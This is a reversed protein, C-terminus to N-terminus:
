PRTGVGKGRLEFVKVVGKANGAAVYNQFSAVATIREGDAAIRRTEQRPPFMRDYFRLRGDDTAVVAVADGVLVPSGKAVREHPELTDKVASRMFVVGASDIRVGDGDWEWQSGRSLSFLKTDPAMDFDRTASDVDIRVLTEDDGLVAFLKGGLLAIPVQDSLQRLPLPRSSVDLRGNHSVTHLQLHGLDESLFVVQRRVEDAAAWSLRWSSIITRPPPPVRAQTEIMQVERRSQTGIQQHSTVYIRGDMCTLAQIPTGSVPSQWLRLLQPAELSLSGLSYASVKSPSGLYLVGRDICPECSIPGDVKFRRGTEGLRPDAIEITGGQSVAILHRDYGLLSRCPDGLQLHLATEQIEPIVGGRPDWAPLESNNLGLRAASGKASLWNASSVPMEARCARCFNAFARQSTGCQPCRKLFGGCAPCSAEATPLTQLPCKARLYPCSM